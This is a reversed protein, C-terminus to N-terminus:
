LQMGDNRTNVPESPLLQHTAMDPIPQPHPVNESEIQRKACGKIAALLAFLMGLFLM